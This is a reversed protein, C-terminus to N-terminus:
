KISKFLYIATDINEDLVYNISKVFAYDIKNNLINDIFIDNLSLLVNGTYRKIENIDELKKKIINHINKVYKVNEYNLGEMESLINDFFLKVRTLRQIIVLHIGHGEGVKITCVDFQKQYNIYSLKHKNNNELILLSSQTLMDNLIILDKFLIVVEMVYSAFNNIDDESAEFKKATDFYRLIKNDFFSLFSSFSENDEFTKKYKSLVIHIFKLNRLFTEETTFFEKVKKYIEIKKDTETKIKKDIIDIYDNINKFCLGTLNCKNNDLIDCLDFNKNNM